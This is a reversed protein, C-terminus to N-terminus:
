QPHINPEALFEVFVADFLDSDKISSLKVLADANSNRIRPIVEISSASFLSVLKKAKDLYAAM